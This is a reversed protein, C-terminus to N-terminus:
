KFAQGCNQCFNAHPDNLENCHPCKRSKTLARGCQICFKADGLNATGCGQCRVASRSKDAFGERVGEAVAGAVTKIGDKTEDALYNFTDKAPPAMEQSMYRMIKGMYGLRTLHIGIGLLIMGVFCCWFLTPPHFGGFASFFDVLGVIMFGGGIVILIPGITRFIDRTSNHGPDIRNDDM